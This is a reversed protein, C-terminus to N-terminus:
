KGFTQRYTDRLAQVAPVLSTVSMEVSGNALANNLAGCVFIFEDRQGNGNGSTRTAGSGNGDTHTWGNDAPKQPAPSNGGAEIVEQIYYQDQGNYPESKYGVTYSQGVAFRDLPIDRTWFKWYTGKDDKISAPGKGKPPNVYRVTVTATQM